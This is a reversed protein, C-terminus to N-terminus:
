THEIGSSSIGEGLCVTSSSYRRAIQKLPDTQPRQLGQIPLVDNRSRQVLIHIPACYYCGSDRKKDGCGSM